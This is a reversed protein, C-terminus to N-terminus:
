LQRKHFKVRLGGKPSMIIDPDLEFNKPMNECNEVDFFRLIYILNMKMTFKAYNQGLCQRLGLGFPLYTGSKIKSKNEANFREPDFELPNEWYEPDKHLASIPVYVSVGVPLTLDTGPVKWPKTVCRSSVSVVALRTVESLVCDLYKMGVIDTDTLDIDGDEKADFVADIEETLKTMVDPHTVIFALAGVLQESTSNYGDFIYQLTTRVLSNEDLEEPNEEHVKILTSLIDTGIENQSKRNKIHKKMLATFWAEAKPNYVSIRFFTAISPIMIVLIFRWMQMLLDGNKRLECDETEFAKADMGFGVAGLTNIVSRKLIDSADFKNGKISEKEIFQVMEKGAKTFFPMFNKMRPLSFPGNVAKRLKKWHDGQADAIGFVNGMTQFINKFLNKIVMITQLIKIHPDCYYKSIM